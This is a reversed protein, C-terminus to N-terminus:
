EAALPVPPHAFAPASGDDPPPSEAACPPASASAPSAPPTAEKEERLRRGEAWAPKFLRDELVTRLKEHAKQDRDITHDKRWASLHDDPPADTPVPERHLPEEDSPSASQERDNPGDKRHVPDETIPASDPEAPNRRHGAPATRDRKPPNERHMLNKTRGGGEALRAARSLGTALRHLLIADPLPLEPDLGLDCARDCVAALLAPLPPNAAQSTANGFM